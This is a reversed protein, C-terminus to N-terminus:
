LVNVRLGIDIAQSSQTAPTARTAVLTLPMTSVISWVTSPTWTTVFQGQSDYLRWILNNNSPNLSQVVLSLNTDVPLSWAIRNDLASLQAQIAQGPILHPADVLNILKVKFAGAGEIALELKGDLPWELISDTTLAAFPTDDESQLVSVFRYRVAAGVPVQLQTVMLPNAAPVPIRVRAFTYQDGTDFGILQGVVADSFSFAVPQTRVQYTETLGQDAVARIWYLGAPLSKTDSGVPISNSRNWIQLKNLSLPQGHTDLLLWEGRFTETLDLRYFDGSTVYSGNTTILPVNGILQYKFEYSSLSESTVELTYNGIPFNTLPTSPLPIRTGFPTLLWAQASSTRFEFNVAPSDITFHILHRTQVGPLIGAHTQGAAVNFQLQATAELDMDITSGAGYAFLYFEQPKGDNSAPVFTRFAPIHLDTPLLIEFQATTAFGPDLTMSQGAPLTLKYLKVSETPGLQYTLHGPSIEEANSLDSITLSYTQSRAGTISLTYSGDALEQISATPLFSSLWEGYFRIERGAQDTLHVNERELFGINFLLLSRRNVTFTYRHEDFPEISDQVNTGLDLSRQKPVIEKLEVSTQLGASPNFLKLHYSGGAPIFFFRDNRQVELGLADTIAIGIGTARVELLMEGSAQFRFSNEGSNLQVSTIRNLELLPRDGLPVINTVVDQSQATENGLLIALEGAAYLAGTQGGPLASMMAATTNSPERSLVLENESANVARLLHAEYAGLTEIFPQGISATPASALDRLVFRYNQTQQNASTLFVQYVGAEILRFVRDFAFADLITEGTLKRIILRVDATGASEQWDFLAFVQATVQINAILKESHGDVTGDRVLGFGATARGAAASDASRLTVSYRQAMPSKNMLVLEYIGDVPVLFDQGLSLQPEYGLLHWQTMLEAVDFDLQSFTVRDGRQLNWHLRVIDGATALEGAAITNLAIARTEDHTANWRFTLDTLPVSGVADALLYYDNESPLQLDFDQLRNGTFTDLSQSTFVVGNQDFISWRAFPSATLADLYFRSQGRPMRYIATQGAAVTQIVSATLEPWQTQTSVQITLSGISVEGRGSIVLRYGMTRSAQWLNMQPDISKSVTAGDENLFEVTTKDLNGNLLALQYFQGALSSTNLEYRELGSTFPLSIPAGVLLPQRITTATRVQWSTTDHRALVRLLVGSQLDTFTFSGEKSIASSESGNPVVLFMHAGEIMLTGYPPASDLYYYDAQGLAPADITTNLPLPQINSLPTLRVRYALSGGSALVREIGITTETQNARFLWQQSDTKWSFPSLTIAADFNLGRDLTEVDLVYYLGPITVYSAVLRDGQGALSGEILPDATPVRFEEIAKWFQFGTLNMSFLYIGSTEAQFTQQDSSSLPLDHRQGAPDIYYGLAPAGATHSQVFFRDGRQLQLKYLNLGVQDLLEKSQPLERLDSLKLIQFRNQNVPPEVVRLRYHGATLPWLEALAPGPSDVTWPASEHVIRGHADYLEIRSRSIERGYWFRM